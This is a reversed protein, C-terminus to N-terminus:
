IFTRSEECAHGAGHMMSLWVRRTRNRFKPLHSTNVSRGPVIYLDFRRLFYYYLDTAAVWPFGVIGCRLLLRRTISVAAANSIAAM